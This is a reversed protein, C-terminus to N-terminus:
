FRDEVRGLGQCPRARGWRRRPCARPRMALGGCVEVSEIFADEALDGVSLSADHLYLGSVMWGDECGMNWREERRHSRRLITTLVISWVVGFIASHPFRSLGGRALNRIAQFITKTRKGPSQSNFPPVRSLVRAAALCDSTEPDPHADFRFDPALAVTM